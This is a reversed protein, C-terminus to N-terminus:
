LVGVIPDFPSRVHQTAEPLNREWRVRTLERGGPNTGAPSRGAPSASQGRPRPRGGHAPLGPAAGHRTPREARRDAGPPHRKRAGSTKPCCSCPQAIPVSPDGALMEYTLCARAYVDSRADLDREGAVQEPSMYMPTGLSMGTETLRGGGASSVAVAIGFDGVLPVDDQLLV